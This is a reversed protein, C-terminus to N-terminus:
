KSPLSNVVFLRVKTAFDEVLNGGTAIELRNLIEELDDGDHVEVADGADTEGVKAAKIILDDIQIHDLLPEMEEKIAEKINWGDAFKGLSVGRCGFELKAVTLPTRPFMIRKQTVSPYFFLTFYYSILQPDHREIQHRPHQKYVSLADVEDQATVLMAALQMNHHSGENLVSTIYRKLISM